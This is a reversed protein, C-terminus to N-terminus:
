DYARLYLLKALSRAMLANLHTLAAIVIGVPSQKLNVLITLFLTQAVAQQKPSSGCEKFSPM